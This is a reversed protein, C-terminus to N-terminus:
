ASVGPLSAELNALDQLIEPIKARAAQYGLEVLKKGKRFNIYTEGCLEPSILSNADALGSGAKRFTIELANLGYGFPGWARRLRPRFLDVGIVYEAGMRRLVNVPIADVLTGDGLLQGNVKEAAVFGPILCSACVAAALNGSHFYVAKGDELNTAAIAFPIRLHEIDVDGLADTIWKKLPAFSVFGSVPWVPRAIHRWGIKLARATLEVLPMGACYFGGVLAGASSGSIFDAALGAEELARLVGLHAMGRAVGGGLALGIRVKRNAM